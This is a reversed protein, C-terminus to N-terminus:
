GEQSDECECFDSCYEQDTSISGGCNPCHKHSSAELLAVRRKLDEIERIDM